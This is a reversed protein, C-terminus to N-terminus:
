NKIQKMNGTACSKSSKSGMSICYSITNEKDKERKM